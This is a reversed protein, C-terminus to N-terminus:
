ERELLRQVRQMEQRSYGGFGPLNQVERYVALAREWWTRAGASDHVAESIDGM